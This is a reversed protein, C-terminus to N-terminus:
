IFFPNEKKENGINTMEGHGPYVICNDNLLFLKNKISSIIDKYSGGPLDTRGISCKFLTDGSFIYKENLVLSISGRTHGPTHFVKIKLEGLDIIDNENITQDAMFSIVPTGCFSSLNKIPDRLLINDLQHILLKAEPFEQKIFNNGCIHDAHGHTNIIYKLNFKEKKIFDVIESSDVGGPDIVAGIQTKSCAIIYSNTALAGLTFSKIIYNM